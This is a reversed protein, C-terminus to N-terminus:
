NRLMHGLTYDLHDMHYRKADQRKMKEQKINIQGYPVTEDRNPLNEM